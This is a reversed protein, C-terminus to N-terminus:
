NHRVPLPLSPHEWQLIHQPPGLAMVLRMVEEPQLLKRRGFDIQKQHCWRRFSDKGMGYLVALEKKSYTKCVFTTTM